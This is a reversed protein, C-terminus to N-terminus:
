RRKLVHGWEWAPFLSNTSLGTRSPGYYTTYGGYYTGYGRSFGGFLPTSGYGSFPRYYQQVYAGPSPSYGPAPVQVIVQAHSESPGAVFFFAAAVTASISLRRM